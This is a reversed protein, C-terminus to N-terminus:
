PRLTLAEALRAVSEPAIRFAANGEPRFWSLLASSSVGLVDAYEAQTLGSNDWARYIRQNTTM